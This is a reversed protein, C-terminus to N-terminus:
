EGSALGTLDEGPPPGSPSLDYRDQVSSARCAGDNTGSADALAGDLVPNVASFLGWPSECGPVVWAHSMWANSGTSRVGGRAACEEATLSSDGIVGGSGVCLGIHRHYHDNAGTFGQTPPATGDLRLYYSLGVIRADPGDGDYLLMEPQDVEFEGDVNGFNMYHAAIGPVYGTVRYWGDAVADAATPHALAVSRATEVEDALRACQQSDTLATWAQPGLHDSHDETSAGPTGHTMASGGDRFWQEWAAYEGDTAESLAVILAGAQAEANVQTTLSVMRDLQPSGRGGLPLSSVADVIGSSAPAGHSHGGAGAAEAATGATAAGGAVTDTGFAQAEAWYANPLFSRDCRSQDILRLTAEDTTAAAAGDGHSHGGGGGHGHAIAGPSAIAGTVLGAVALAAVPAARSPLSLHRPGLLAALALVVAAAELGAAILDIAEVPEVVNAHTGVPLGVTRSWAWLGLVGLNGLVVALHVGPTARRTLLLGATVIQFWGVVAFGVPDIWSGGAHVPVMAFHIVGAGALLAALVLDLGSGLRTTERTTVTQTM